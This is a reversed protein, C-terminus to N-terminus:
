SHKKKAGSRRRSRTSWRAVNVRHFVPHLVREEKRELGWGCLSHPGNQREQPMGSRMWMFFPLWRPMSPVLSSSIVPAWEPRGRSAQILIRRLLIWPHSVTDDQLLILIEKYTSPKCCRLLSSYLGLDANLSPSRQFGTTWVAARRVSCTCSRWLLTRGLVM